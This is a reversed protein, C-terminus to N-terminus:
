ILPPCTEGTLRRPDPWAPGERRPPSWTLRNVKMRMELTMKISENCNGGMIKIIMDDKVNDVNNDGNEKDSPIM